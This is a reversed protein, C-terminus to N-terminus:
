VGLPQAIPEEGVQWKDSKIFQIVCVRWGRAVARLLVGFAAPSKGKGDGTNVLVLSRPVSQRRSGDRQGITQSSAERRSSTSMFFRRTQPPPPEGTQAARGGKRRPGTREACLLRGPEDGPLPM